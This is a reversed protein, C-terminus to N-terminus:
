AREALKKLRALYEHNRRAVAHRTFVWDVARGLKGPIEYESRMHVRTGSGSGAQIEWRELGRVGYSDEFRWELLRGM